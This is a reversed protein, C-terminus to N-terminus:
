FLHFYSISCDALLQRKILGKIIWGCHAATIFCFNKTTTTNTKESPFLKTIM